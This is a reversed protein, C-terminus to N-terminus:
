SLIFYIVIVIIVYALFSVLFVGSLYIQPTSAIALVLCDLVTM